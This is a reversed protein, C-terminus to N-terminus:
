DELTGIFREGSGLFDRLAVVRDGEIYCATATVGDIGSVDPASAIREWALGDSSIWVECREVWTGSEQAQRYGALVWGWSVPGFGETHYVGEINAQVVEWRTGDVLGVLNNQYDATLLAVVQGDKAALELGTPIEDIQVPEGLPEWSRGDESRWSWLISFRNSEEWAPRGVAVLVMADPTTVVKVFDVALGRWPPELWSAEGDDVRLGWVVPGWYGIAGKSAEGTLQEAVVTPDTAELQLVLEGTDRYRFEVADPTGRVVEITLARTEEGQLDLRRASRDWQPLTNEGVLTSWDVVGFHSVATVTVGNRSATTAYNPVWEVDAIAPPPTDAPLPAEVPLGSPAPTVDELESLAGGFHRWTWRGLSTKISEVETAQPLDVGSPLTTDTPVTTTPEPLTAVPSETGGFVNLLAIGGFLVVVVVAAALAIALGRRTTSPRSRTPSVQGLLEEFAIDPYQHDLEQGYERIQTQLDPM